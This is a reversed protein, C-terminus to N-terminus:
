SPRRARRIARVSRRRLVRRRGVRRRRRVVVPSADSGSASSRGPPLLWARKVPSIAAGPHLGAAEASRQGFASVAPGSRVCCCGRRRVLPGRRHCLLHKVSRAASGGTRWFRADPAQLNAALSRTSATTSSPSSKAGAGPSLRSRRGARASHQERSCLPWSGAAAILAAPSQERVSPTVVIASAGGYVRRCSHLDRCPLRRGDRLDGVAPRASAASPGADCRFRPSTGTEAHSRQGRRQESVGAHWTACKPERRM